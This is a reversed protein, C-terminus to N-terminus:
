FETIVRMSPWVGGLGLPGNPPQPRGAPVQRRGTGRPVPIDNGPMPGKWQAGNRILQRSVSSVPAILRECEQILTAVALSSSAHGSM